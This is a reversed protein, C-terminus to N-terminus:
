RMMVCRMKLQCAIDEETLQERFINKVERLAMKEDRYIVGIPIKDGWLDAM